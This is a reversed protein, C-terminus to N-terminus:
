KFLASCCSHAPGTSATSTTTCVTMIFSRALPFHFLLLFLLPILLFLFVIPPPPLLRPLYLLFFLVQIFVAFFLFSIFTFSCSCSSALILISLNLHLLASHLVHLIFSGLNYFSIIACFHFLLSLLLPFSSPRWSLHHCYWRHNIRPPPGRVTNTSSSFRIVSPLCDCVAQCGAAGWVSTEGCKVPPRPTRSPLRENGKVQAERAWRGM